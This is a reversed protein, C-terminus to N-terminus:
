TNARIYVTGSGGTTIFAIRDSEQLGVLRVLSNAPIPTGAATRASAGSVSVSQGGAGGRSIFIADNRQM